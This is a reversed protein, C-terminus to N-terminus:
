DESIPFFDRDMKKIKLTNEVRCGVSYRIMLAALKEGDVTRIRLKEAAETAAPTFSSTTFFIGSNVGKLQLAGAFDRIEKEPVNHDTYRKAQVYVRDVGLPDRDIVGDVGGDGSKGLVQGANPDSAGGYDMARLLKIILIEFFAPPSSLIADILESALADTIEEYAEQLVEDPRKSGEEEEVFPAVSFNQSKGKRRKKRFEAFEEFRDLYAIDIADGSALCRKGRDTIAYQAFIATKEVLRAQKLYTNAWGANSSLRTTRGTPILETREAETLQFNEALLNVIERLKLAGREAYLQLIPRMLTQFNPIM